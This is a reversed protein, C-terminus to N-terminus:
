FLELQTYGKEIERKKKGEFALMREFQKTTFKIVRVHGAPPLFWRVRNVHVDANEESPCYRIYVSYQMMTFGDKLLNTHFRTYEKREEPEKVPLDFLVMLWM